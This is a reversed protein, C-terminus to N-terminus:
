DEEESEDTTDPDCSENLLNHSTITLLGVMQAYTLDFEFRYRDILKNLDDAFASEQERHTM